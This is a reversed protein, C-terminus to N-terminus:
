DSIGSVNLNGLSVTLKVNDYQGLNTFAQIYLNYVSIEDTKAKIEGIKQVYVNKLSSNSGPSFLALHSNGTLELNKYKEFGPIKCIDEITLAPLNDIGGAKELFWDYVNEDILFRDLKDKSLIRANAIIASGYSSNEYRYVKDYTMAYRLIARQKLAQRLEPYLKYSNFLRVITEFYIAFVFAHLPTEFIFYGGDGTNIFHNKFYEEKDIGQFISNEVDICYKMATDRLIHAVFPVLNREKEKMSSYRYLDIGLVASNKVDKFKDKYLKKIDEKNNLIDMLEKHSFEKM